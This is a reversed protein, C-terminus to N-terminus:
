YRRSVTAGSKDKFILQRRSSDVGVFTISLGADVLEDARILRGNIM